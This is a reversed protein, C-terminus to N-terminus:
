SESLYRRVTRGSVLGAIVAVLLAVGAILGYGRAGMGFAGFLSQLALASAGGAASNSLAGCLAIFLCAAGAGLVGGRLGLRLFRKQFERAIFRDGAGVFHLVEVVERNGAMAGRTAFVVAAAGAALVLAVIGVAVLVITNAMTTLRTIWAGHDDVLAGPIEATLQRALGDLDPRAGRDLGLVILRPVPLDALDLGRGLWPELLGESEARSVPRASEIGPVARALVAARTMDAEIDRGVAPKIQITAERAISARWDQSSAAVIEAGGTALAALFTLVAIVAVLARSAANDSPVLPNGRGLGAASIPVPAGAADPDSARGSPAARRDPAMRRNTSM